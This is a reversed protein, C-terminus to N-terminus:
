VAPKCVIMVYLFEFKVWIAVLVSVFVKESFKWSFSGINVETDAFKRISGQLM